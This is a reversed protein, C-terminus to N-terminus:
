KVITDIILTPNWLMLNATRQKELDFETPYRRKFQEFFYAILEDLGFMGIYLRIGDEIAKIDMKKIIARELQAIYCQQYITAIAIFKANILMYDDLEKNVATVDGKAAHVYAKDVHSNWVMELEQAKDTEYLAPYTEMLTFVRELDNLDIADFFRYQVSISDLMDKVDDKYDEFPDLMNAIQEAKHFDSDDYAQQAKIYLNDSYDLVNQYEPFETLFPHIKILEFLRRFDKQGIIKKMFEYKQYNNFLEQTHPTKDSIGRFPALLDRAQDIAGKQAILKQAQMFLKTWLKELAIFQKSKKFSPYQNALSYALPYKKNAIYTLFAQYQQFDRFLSNIESQKQSVESFEKILLKAEKSHSNELLKKVNELVTEYEDEAAMYVDSYALMPNNEVEQYFAKFKRNYVLAELTSVDGLLSYFKIEGEITGVSLKFGDEHFALSTISSSEKIFRQKLLEYTELDYLAIYGLKSGVFLFHSNGSICTATITDNMKTLRKLLKANKTDWVILGGEKDASLLRSASLFNLKVLPSSHARLKQPNKMTSLNVLTISKDYSGSAIWQSNKSFAITSVYDTHPPLVFAIKSTKINYAFVKGDEGGTVIYKGSPDICLSEVGGQHRGTKYILEKKAVSFLAAKNSGVISAASIQMNSSIDVHNAFIREQKINTKFGGVVKYDNLNMIRLTSNEDVVALKKNDLEKLLLIPVKLNTVYIAEM